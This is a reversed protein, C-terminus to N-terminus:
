DRRRLTVSGSFTEIKVRADGGGISFELEKSPGYRNRDPAPGLENTIRGSYTAVDFRASTEAPLGLEVGGSHSEAEIEAGAALAGAIDIHGSTTSMEARRIEGTEIEISGSVTDAEIERMAGRLRIRGSVSEASVREVEADIEISGSVSEVSLEKPRGEVAVSGSVSEVTVEGEVESIEVEASIVEIDVESGRPVRIELDADAGHGHSRRVLEVEIEVARGRNEVVLEEVGRGLTGTVEVEDRDWGTVAVSGAVNSITVQGDPRASVIREIESDATAVAPFLLLLGAALVSLRALPASVSLTRSMTRSM